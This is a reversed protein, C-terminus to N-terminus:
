YKIHQAGKTLRLFLKWETETEESDVDPQSVGKQGDLNVKQVVGYFNTLQSIEEKGYTSLGDETNPLNHPDLVSKASLLDISEM